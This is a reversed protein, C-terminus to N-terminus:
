QPPLWDGKWVMRSMPIYVVDMDVDGSFRMELNNNGIQRTDYIGAETSPQNVRLADWVDRIANERSDEGQSYDEPSVGINDSGDADGVVYFRATIFSRIQDQMPDDNYPGYRQMYYFGWPNNDDPGDFGTDYGEPYVWYEDPSATRWDDTYTYRTSGVDLFENDIIQRTDDNSKGLFTRTEALSDGPSTFQVSMEALTPVGSTTSVYRYSGPIEGPAWYRDGQTGETQLWLNWPLQKLNGDYPEALRTTFGITSLGAYNGSGRLSVNLVQVTQSDLRLVYQQTRVWNGERDKLVRGAQADAQQLLYDDRSRIDGSQLQWNIDDLMEGEAEARHMDLIQQNLRDEEVQVAYALFGFDPADPGTYTNITDLTAQNLFLKPVVSDQDTGVTQLGPEYSPGDVFEWYYGWEEMQPYPNTGAEDVTNFLGPRYWSGNGRNWEVGAVDRGSELASDWSALDVMPPQAFFGDGAEVPATPDLAAVDPTFSNCDDDVGNSRIESAGPNVGPDTDDCDGQNETYGDGDDDRDQADLGDDPTAPNCDDDKGNYPLEAVGPNVTADTDDCDGQNETYGDGDNDRDQPDFDNGPDREDDGPLENDGDVISEPEPPEYAEVGPYVQTLEDIGQEAAVLDPDAELAKQFSENAKQYDGRDSHDIGEFLYLLAQLNDTLNKKLEAEEEATLQIQMQKIIQFLLDKEMAFLGDLLKGETEPQAFIEETPVKLLDSRLKFEQIKGRLIDGGVLHQVGLLRGMRSKEGSGTLEALGMEDKLAQVRAREVLKIRELKSLDTILMVTLGKELVDLQSSGTKNLFYLVAVSNPASVTELNKEQELAEKAWARDEEGVVQNGGFAGKAATLCVGLFLVCIIVPISSGKKM